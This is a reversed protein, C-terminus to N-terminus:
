ADVVSLQSVLKRSAVQPQLVLRLVAVHRGPGRLTPRRHLSPRLPSAHGMSTGSTSSAPNYDQYIAIEHLPGSYHQHTSICLTGHVEGSGTCPLCPVVQSDRTGRTRQAIIVMSHVNM